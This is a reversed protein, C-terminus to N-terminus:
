ILPRIQVLYFLEVPPPKLQALEALETVSYIKAVEFNESALLARIHDADRLFMQMPARLIKWLLRPPLMALAIRGHKRWDLKLYLDILITTNEFNEALKWIKQLLQRLAEEGLYGTMGECIILTTPSSNNTALQPNNSAAARSLFGGSIKVALDDNLLDAILLQHNPLLPSLLSQKLQIVPLQDIEVYTGAPHFQAWQSGRPSLGAALEIIQDFHQQALWADIGLYRPALFLQIVNYDGRLGLLGGGWRVVQRLFCGQRTVFRSAGAVKLEHWVAATFHATRSVGPQKGVM